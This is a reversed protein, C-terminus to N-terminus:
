ACCDFGGGSLRALGPIIGLSPLAASWISHSRSSDNRRSLSRSPWDNQPWDNMASTSLNRFRRGECAGYPRESFLRPLCSCSLKLGYLSRLRRSSALGVTSTKLGFGSPRKMTDDLPVRCKELLAPVEADLTGGGRTRSGGFSPSDENLRWWAGYPGIPLPRESKEELRHPRGPPSLPM